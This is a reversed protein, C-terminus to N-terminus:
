AAKVNWILPEFKEMIALHERYHDYLKLKLLYNAQDIMIEYIRETLEVYEDYYQTYKKIRGIDGIPYVMRNIKGVRRGLKDMEIVTQLLKFRYYLRKM